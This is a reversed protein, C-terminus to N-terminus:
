WRVGYYDNVSRSYDPTYTPIDDAPYRPAGELTSKDLPVVYGEMSKDYKLVDWPLPYRDTGVGLFGGFELVAYRVNGSLKDIILEDISGLKQGEPNFVATGEVKKSSIHPNGM